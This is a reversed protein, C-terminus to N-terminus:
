RSATMIRMSCSPTNAGPVALEGFVIPPSGGKAIFQKTAFGRAKLEGELMTAAATIGAPSAAVSKLRTLKDLRTVIESEHAARWTDIQSSFPSATAFRQSVCDRSRMIESHEERPEGKAAPLRIHCLLPKCSWPVDKSLSLVLVNPIARASTVDLIEERQAQGDESFSRRTKCSTPDASAKQRLRISALVMGIGALRSPRMM